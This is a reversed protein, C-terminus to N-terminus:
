GLLVRENGILLDHVQIRTTVGSRWSNTSQLARVASVREASDSLASKLQAFAIRFSKKEGSRKSSLMLLLMCLNAFFASRTLLHLPLPSELKLSPDRSSTAGGLTCFRARSGPIHSIWPLPTTSVIPSRPTVRHLRCLYYPLSHRGSCSIRRLTLGLNVISWVALRKMIRIHPYTYQSIFVFLSPPSYLFLKIRQNGFFVNSSLFLVFGFFSLFSNFFFVFCDSFYFFFFFSKENRHQNDNTTM